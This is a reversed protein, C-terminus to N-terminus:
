SNPLYYCMCKIVIQPEYGLRARILLQDCTVHPVHEQVTELLPRRFSGYGPCHKLYSVSKDKAHPTIQRTLKSGLGPGGKGSGFIFFPPAGPGPDFKFRDLQPKTPIVCRKKGTFSSCKYVMAKTQTRTSFATANTPFCLNSEHYMKEYKFHKRNVKRM